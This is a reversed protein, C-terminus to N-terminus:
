QVNPRWACQRKPTMCHGCCIPSAHTRIATNSRLRARHPPPYGRRRILGIAFVRPWSGLRDLGACALIIADYEGADLSPSARTSTAACIWLSCTRACHARSPRAGAARLASVRGPPLTWLASIAASWSHMPPTPASSCRASRSVRTSSCRRGQVFARRHRRPTRRHRSGTGEPVLGRRRDRRALSGHDPRRADDDAGTRRGAASAGRAAAGRRSRGAM